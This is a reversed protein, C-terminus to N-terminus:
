LWRDAASCSLGPPECYDHLMVGNAALAALHPTPFQTSGHMSVDSFGLDSRHIRRKLLLVLACARLCAIGGPALAPLARRGRSPPADWEALMFLVHPQGTKTAVATPLAAALLLLTTAAALQAVHIGMAAQMGMIM